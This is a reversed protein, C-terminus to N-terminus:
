PRIRLRGCRSSRGPGSSGTPTSWIVTVVLVPAGEDHLLTAARRRLLAGADEAQTAHLIGLPAAPHRFRGARLLGADTLLKIAQTATEVSTDALAALVSLPAPTHLIALARVVKLTIAEGRYLCGLLSQTYADGAM